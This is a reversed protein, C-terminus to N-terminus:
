NQGFDKHAELAFNKHLISVMEPNRLAYLIAASTMLHDPVQESKVPPMMAEVTGDDRLIIVCDDPNVEIRRKNNKTIM